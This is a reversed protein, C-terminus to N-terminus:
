MLSKASGDKSAILALTRRYAPVVPVHTVGGWSDGFGTQKIFDGTVDDFAFLGRDSNVLLVGPFAAQAIALFAFISIFARLVRRHRLSCRM